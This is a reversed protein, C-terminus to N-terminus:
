APPAGLRYSVVRHAFYSVPTICVAILIAAALYWMHFSEVLVRLLSTNIALLACNVLIYRAMAARDMGAGAKFTFHGNLLFGFLNTVLFSGIYALWYPLGALEVLGTLVAAGVVFSLLGVACFRILQSPEIM